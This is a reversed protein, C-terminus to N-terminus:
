ANEDNREFYQIVVITINDPAGNAYTEVVLKRCAEEPTTCGNMIKLIDEDQVVSSLGDSCLIMWDGARVEFPNSQVELGADHGLCKTILHRYPSNWLQEKTLQGRMYMEMVVTDDITLLNIQRDRILYARSDGVNAIHMKDGLQVALLFTTGMEAFKSDNAAADIIDHNAKYAATKLWADVELGEKQPPKQSHLSEVAEVALRSAIAGGKTGGMGDAVLYTGNKENVFYNDQNEPRNKGIDTTAFVRWSLRSM